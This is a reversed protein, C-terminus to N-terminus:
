RDRAAEQRKAQERVARLRDAYEAGRQAEMAQIKEDFLSFDVPYEPDEGFVSKPPDGLLIQMPEVTTTAARSRHVVRIPFGNLDPAHFLTVSAEETGSRVVLTRYGLVTEEGSFGDMARVEAETTIQRGGSPAPSVFQMSNQEPRVQFVGRAPINTLIRNAAVTGDPRFPSTIERFRGDAREYRVVIASLVTRGVLEEAVEAGPPFSDEHFETLHHQVLTYGVAQSSPTAGSRQSLNYGAFGFFLLGLLALTLKRNAKM